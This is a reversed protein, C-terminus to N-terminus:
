HGTIGTETNNNQLYFPLYAGDRDKQDDVHNESNSYIHGM